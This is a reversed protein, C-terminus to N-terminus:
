YFNFKYEDGTILLFKKNEEDIYGLINEKNINKKIINKKYDISKFLDYDKKIFLTIQIYNSFYETQKVFYNKDFLNINLMSMFNNFEQYKILFSIEAYFEYILIQSKELCKESIKKYARSLNGIGMVGGFYRAILLISYHLDNKQLTNM